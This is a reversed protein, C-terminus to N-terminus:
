PSRPPASPVSWAPRASCHGASNGPATRAARQRRTLTLFSTALTGVKTAIQLAKFGGYAAILLIIAEKNGGVMDSLFKFADKLFNVATTLVEAATKVTDM